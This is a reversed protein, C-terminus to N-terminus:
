QHYSHPRAPSAPSSFPQHLPSSSPSMHPSLEGTQLRWLLEENNRSLRKKEKNEQEVHVQLNANEESLQRSTAVNKDIRAKLDENQQQLVQVREELYVNKEAMIELESIKVEQQHIQQNKMELVDKLSKLDEEIHQYPALADVIQEDTSRRLAEEFRKARDRLSRNQFTLTDVQDQLSLRLKEFDEELSKRQQEHAMKLNKVTRTQEERLTGLTDNHTKEMEMLTAEQSESMDDIAHRARLREDLAEVEGQQRCRLGRLESRFRRELEEKDRQLHEWRAVSVAVEDRLRSLELSLETQKEIASDSKQCFHQTTIAFVELGLTAKRLQAQLYQVQQAQDHCLDRLQEHRPHERPLRRQAASSQPPPALPPPPALFRCAATGGPLLLPRQSRPHPRGPDGHASDGSQSSSVSSPSGCRALGFSALRAPPLASFGPPRLGSQGVRLPPCTSTASPDENTHTPGGTSRQVKSPAKIKDSQQRAVAGIGLQPKITRPSRYVGGTEAPEQLYKSSPESHVSEPRGSGKHPSSSSSSPPKGSGQSGPGAKQTGHRYMGSGIKPDSPPRPSSHASVESPVDTGEPKTQPNKRVYTIIKPRINQPKQSTTTHDSERQPPHAVPKPIGSNLGVKSAHKTSATARLPSESREKSPARNTRTNAPSGPAKRKPSGSTKAPVPSVTRGPSGWPKRRELSSTNVVQSNKDFSGRKKLSSEFSPQKKLTRDFSRQKSLSKDFSAQKRMPQISSQTSKFRSTPLNDNMNPTQDAQTSQDIKKNSDEHEDAARTFNDNDQEGERRHNLNGRHEEETGPIHKKGPPVSNHIQQAVLVVDKSLVYNSNRNMNVDRRNLTTSIAPTHRNPKLPPVKVRDSVVSSSLTLDESFTRYPGSTPGSTDLASALSGGLSSMTSLCSVFVDNESSLDTRTICEVLDPGSTRVGQEVTGHGGSRRGANLQPDGPTRDTTPHSKQETLGVFDERDQVLDTELEQCELMEFEALEPDECQSDTGRIVVKDQPGTAVTLTSPATGGDGGEAPLDNANADSDSVLGAHGNNNKAEGQVLPDGREESM